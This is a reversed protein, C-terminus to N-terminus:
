RGVPGADQHGLDSALASDDLDPSPDTWRMMIDFIVLDPPNAAIQDIQHCVTVLPRRIHRVDGAM